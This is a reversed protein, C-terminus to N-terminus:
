NKEDYEWEENKLIKQPNLTTIKEFKSDGIVKKIKKIAKELCFKVAALSPKVSQAVQTTGESNGNKM